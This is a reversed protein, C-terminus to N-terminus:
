DTVKTCKAGNHVGVYKYGHSTLEGLLILNVSAGPVHKVNHLTRVVGNKFKLCVSGVGEVKLKDNNGVTTYGYERHSHLTDFSNKDECIHTSAVSDLM